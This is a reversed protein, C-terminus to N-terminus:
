GAIVCCAAAAGAASALAAAAGAAGAPFAPWAILGLRVDDPQKLPDPASQLDASVLEM